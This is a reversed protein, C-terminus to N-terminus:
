AQTHSVAPTPTRTGYLFAATRGPDDGQGQTHLLAQRESRETGSRDGRGAAAVSRPMPGAQIGHRRSFRVGDGGVRIAVDRPSAATDSPGASVTRAVLSGPRVAATCVGTQAMELDRVEM